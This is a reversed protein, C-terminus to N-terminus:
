KGIDTNIEIQVPSSGPIPVDLKRLKGEYSFMALDFDVSYIYGNLVMQGNFTAFNAGKPSMLQGLSRRIAWFNAPGEELSHWGKTDYNVVKGDLGPKIAGSLNYFVVYEGHVVNPIRVEGRENSVGTLSTNIVCESKGEKKPALIIRASPVPKKSAVDILVAFFGHQPQKQQAADSTRQCSLTLIVLTPVISISILRITKILIRKM